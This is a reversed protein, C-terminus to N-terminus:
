RPEKAALARALLRVVAEEAEGEDLPQPSPDWHIHVAWTVATELVLRATLPASGPLRLLGRRERQELYRELLALAGERGRRYWVGALEPYDAACRDLLEIGTRHRALLGYLERLIAELEASPERARPRECAAALAPLAGEEAIRKEVERLTAGPPPTPLPLSAPTELPGERDAHRLAADFLAEKSEVYLYVTGKAVGLAAAVDAMQTRRYGQALFVRTAARVLADFRRPSPPRPPM